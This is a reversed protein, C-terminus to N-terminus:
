PAAGILPRRGSQRPVLSGGSGKAGVKLLPFSNDRPPEALPTEPLDAMVTEIKELYRTAAGESRSHYAAIAAPWDGTEAYLDSLFRAAYRANTLPDFMADLSAFNEAHWRHNVQFCGIDLNGTGSTLATEAAATAEAMTDFWHGSGAQNITWPWPRLMGDAGRGTEVRTIALLVDLPVPSDQAAIRAADDCLAAPDRTSHLPGSTLCLALCCSWLPRISM